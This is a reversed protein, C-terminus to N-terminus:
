PVLLVKTAERREFMEYGHAADELPLRHSVIPTPDIKGTRVAELAREWWAHVPCLGTFRLTLSRSWYVGLQMEITETSYVGVIVVRGGRRVVRVAREFAPPAGVAEIAVDAGRGDTAESLSTEPNVASPDIPEMGATAALELRARDPDIAFVRGAGLARATVGVFYGVPGAGVVAVVDGKEIGASSAAFYGTTLVDGVFIARDDDLDDPIHLLNVDARPVRVLEAQSGPLSGLFPGGGLMQVEDCLASQDNACFWCSGCAIDFSAVVRDAPRFRSVGDGVSDVVGVAEHGIVSGTDLPTKGRLFHLDSGCIASRTVRIVADTPEEVVPDAVDTM